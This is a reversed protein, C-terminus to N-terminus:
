RHDSETLQKVIDANQDGMIVHTVSDNLDNFRDFLCRLYWKLLFICCNVFADQLAFRNNDIVKTAVINVDNYRTGGGKNILKKLKDLHAMSFGTLFIQFYCNLIAKCVHMM